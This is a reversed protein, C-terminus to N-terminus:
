YLDFFWLGSIQLDPSAESRGTALSKEKSLENLLKHRPNGRSFLSETSVPPISDDTPVAATVTVTFQEASCCGKKPTSNGRGTFHPAEMSSENRELKSM